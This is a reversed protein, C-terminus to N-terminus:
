PCAIPTLTGASYMRDFVRTSHDFSDGVGFITGSLTANDITARMIDMDRWLGGSDEVRHDQTGVLNAYIKTGIKTATGTLIFPNDGPVTVIGTMVFTSTDLSKVHFKGLMGPMSVKGEETQTIKVTWCIDGTGFVAESNSAACVVLLMTFVVLAATRFCFQRVM